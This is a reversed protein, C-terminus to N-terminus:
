LNGTGFVNGRADMGGCGGMRVPDNMPLGTAPNMCAVYRVTKGNEYRRVCDANNCSETYRTVNGGKPQASPQWDAARQRKEIQASIQALAEPAAVPGDNFYSDVQDCLEGKAAQECAARAKRVADGKSPEAAWATATKSEVVAIWISGTDTTKLVCSRAEGARKQCGDLAMREAAARSNYNSAVFAGGSGMAVAYWRAGEDWSALDLRCSRKFTAKCDKMATQAAVSPNRDTAEAIGGDGRAVVMAVPGAVPEGVLRCGESKESCGQLALRAADESSNANNEVFAFGSDAHAVATWAHAYGCAAVLLVAVVLREKNFKM